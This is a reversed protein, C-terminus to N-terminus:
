AERRGAPQARFWGFAAAFPLASRAAFPMRWMGGHNAGDMFLELPNALFTSPDASSRPNRLDHVLQAAM